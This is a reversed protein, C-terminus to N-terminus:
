SCISGGPAHRAKGRFQLMLHLRYGCYDTRGPGASGQGGRDGTDGPCESRKFPVAQFLARQAAPLKDIVPKLYAYHSKVKLIEVPIYKVVTEYGIKMTNM